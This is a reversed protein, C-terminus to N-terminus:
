MVLSESLIGGGPFYKRWTYRDLECQKQHDWRPCQEIMAACMAVADYDWTRSSTDQLMTVLPLQPNSWNQLWRLVQGANSIQQLANEPSRKLTSKSKTHQSYPLAQMPFRLFKFLDLLVQTNNQKFLEYIASFIFALAM